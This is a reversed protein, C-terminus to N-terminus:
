AAQLPRRDLERLVIALADKLGDIELRLSEIRQQASNLDAAMQEDRAPPTAPAPASAQPAEAPAAGYRRFAEEMYVNGSLAYAAYGWWTNHLERLHNPTPTPQFAGPRVPVDLVDAWLAEGLFDHAAVLLHEDPGEARGFAPTCLPRFLAASPKGFWEAEQVVGSSLAVFRVDDDGALLEYTDTECRAVNRGLLRELMQREQEAFDGTLPHPKYLVPADGVWDLLERTFQEVRVCRGDDDLLAADDETQGVYIVHGDHAMHDHRYRTRHRVRAAMLCAEGLVKADSMAHRTLADRLAPDSSAMGVYLDSGFRLPAIRLDLWPAGVSDLAHRLWVPMEYGLFLTREPLYGVLYERAADPIAHYRDHWTRSPLGCLSRFAEVDFGLKLNHRQFMRPSKAIDVGAAMHIPARVLDYFFERAWWGSDRLLDDLCAISDYRM